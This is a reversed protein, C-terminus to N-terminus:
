TRALVQVREQAFPHVSPQQDLVVLPERERVVQDPLRDVGVLAGGQSPGEVPSCGFYEFLHGVAIGAVDSHVPASCPLLCLGSGTGEFGRLLRRGGHRVLLGDAVVLPSQFASRAVVEVRVDVKAHGLHERSGHTRAPVVENGGGLSCLTGM